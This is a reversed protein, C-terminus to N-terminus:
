DENDGGFLEEDLKTTKNRKQSIRISVIAICVVLVLLAIFAYLAITM